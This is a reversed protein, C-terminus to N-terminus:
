IVKLAITTGVLHSRCIGDHIERPVYNAEDPHLCRLSPFAFSKKYLQENEIFFYTSQCELIQVEKKDNPLEEWKLYSVIPLM